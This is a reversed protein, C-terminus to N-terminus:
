DNKDIVSVILLMTSTYEFSKGARINGLMLTGGFTLSWDAAKQRVQTEMWSSDLSYGPLVAQELQLESGVRLTESPAIKEGVTSSFLTWDYLLM